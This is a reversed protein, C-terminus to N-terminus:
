QPAIAQLQGLWTLVRRRNVGFDSRGYRARSYVAISSRDPGLPVFEFTVIDPFGFVLSHQVVSYRRQEPDSAVAIARPTQGIIEAWDERLKEWSVVFAPSPIAEAAACYGTPCALAANGPLPSQLTAIAVREDALLQDEAPRTMYLRLALVSAAIALSGVVPGILMRRSMQRTVNPSM